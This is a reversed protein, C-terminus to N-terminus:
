RDILWDNSFKEDSKEVRRKEFARKRELTNLFLVLRAEEPATVRLKLRILSSLRPESGWLQSVGVVSIAGGLCRQGLIRPDVLTSLTGHPSAM